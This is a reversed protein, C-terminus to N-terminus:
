AAARLPATAATVADGAPLRLASTVPPMSAVRMLLGEIDPAGLKRRISAIQTRVTSLQVDLTRAIRAPRADNLLASLVRREALTLGYTNALMQLGLETCMRRRGLLVLARLDSGDGTDLPLVSVLLRDGGLSIPVLRRRSEDVALKLAEPLDGSAGEATAVRDGSRRLLGGTALEVQAAHNAFHVAGAGDCVIMGCEIEDVLRACLRPLTEDRAAAAPGSAAASRDTCM